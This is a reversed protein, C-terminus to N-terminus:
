LNQMMKVVLFLLDFSSNKFESKLVFLPKNPSQRAESYVNEATARLQLSM